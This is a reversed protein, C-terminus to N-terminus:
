PEKRDLKRENSKVVVNRKRQSEWLERKLIVM